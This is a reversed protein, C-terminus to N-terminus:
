FLGILHWKLKLTASSFLERFNTGAPNTIYKKAYGMRCIIEERRDGMFKNNFKNILALLQNNNKAAAKASAKLNRLYEINGCELFRYYNQRLISEDVSKKYHNIQFDPNVKGIEATTIPLDELISVSTYIPNRNADYFKDTLDYFTLKLLASIEFITALKQPDLLTEVNINMRKKNILSRIYNWKLRAEIRNVKDPPLGNNMFYDLIFKESFHSKNYIAVKNESKESSEIVFSAGNSMVHVITNKRMKFQGSSGLKNNISNKFLLGFQSVLDKNTDVSIEVCNINNYAIGLETKLKLYAEYWFDPKISYFLEKKFDFQLDPKNIKSGSFLKGIICGDYYVIFSHYYAGKGPSNDHRLIIRNFNQDNTIFDPNKINQFTSSELHRFTISLRDIHILCRYEEQKTGINNNTAL